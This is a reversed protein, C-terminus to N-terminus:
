SIKKEWIKIEKKAKIEDNHILLQDHFFKFNYSLNAAMVQPGHSVWFM